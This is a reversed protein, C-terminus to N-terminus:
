KNCHSSSSLKGLPFYFYIKERRKTSVIKMVNLRDCLSRNSKGYYFPGTAKLIM